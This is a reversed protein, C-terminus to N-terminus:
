SNGPLGEKRPLGILQGYDEMTQNSEKFAEWMSNFVMEFLKWLGMEHPSVELQGNQHGSLMEKGWLELRHREILLGVRLERYTSPFDAFQLYLDYVATVATYIQIVAAVLGVGFGVPEM